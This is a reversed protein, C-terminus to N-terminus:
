WIARTRYREFDQLFDDLKQVHDLGYPWPKSAKIREREEKKVKLALKESEISILVAWGADAASIGKKRM